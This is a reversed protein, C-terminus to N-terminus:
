RALVIHHDAAGRGIAAAGLEFPQDPEKHVGQRQPDIQRARGTHRLKQGPHLSYAKLGLAMLVKGELPHDLGHLRRAAQRM